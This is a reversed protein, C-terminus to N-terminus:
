KMESDTLPHQSVANVLLQRLEGLLEERSYAGKQFVTDVRNNLWLRDEM